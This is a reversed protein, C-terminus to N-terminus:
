FPLDDKSKAPAKNSKDPVFTDVEVSHSNGYEDVGNKRRWVNLRVFFQGKDDKKIWEKPIKTLNINISVLNGDFKERGSGCYIKEGM